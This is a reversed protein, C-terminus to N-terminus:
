FERDTMPYLKLYNHGIRYEDSTDLDPQQELSTQLPMKDNHSIDLFSENCLHLSFCKRVVKAVSVEGHRCWSNQDKLQVLSYVITDM